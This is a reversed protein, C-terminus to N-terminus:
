FSVIKRFLFCYNVEEVLCLFLEKLFGFLVAICLYVLSFM